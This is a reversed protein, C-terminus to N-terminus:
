VLCVSTIYSHERRSMKMVRVLSRPLPEKQFYLRCADPRCRVVSCSVAVLVTVMIVVTVTLATTSRWAAGPGAPVDPSFTGATKIESFNSEKFDRIQELM